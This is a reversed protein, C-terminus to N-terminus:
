RMEADIQKAITTLKRKSADWDKQAKQVQEFKALDEYTLRSVGKVLDERPVPAKPNLHAQYQAQWDKLEQPGVKEKSNLLKGYIQAGQKLLATDADIRGRIWAEEDNLAAHLAAYEARVAQVRKGLRTDEWDKAHEAPLTFSAVSKEMARFEDQNRALYPLKLLVLSDQSAQLYASLEEHYKSVAARTDGPLRQFDADGELEALAKNRAELKKMTGQLREVAPAGPRPLLLQVRANLDSHRVSPHFESMLAVALGLMAAVGFAGVVVNQLRGHSTQRREQFDAASELCQRFLEAVGFPEEAKAPRDALAPRKIATAWLQLRITGFGEGQEALFARFKEDIRRKGEEIRQMWKSFTDDKRALLDCKTLVLYVPLEGIDLRKGREQRLESLWRGFQQFEDALQTGTLSADVTLLVADANLLPQKLPHSDLFPEPAKLMEQAQAGSCDLVIADAPAADKETPDLHLDVEANEPGAGGGYASKQLRDWAGNADALQGKLVAPQTAAAQALAGLLATKGAGPPGFLLLRPKAM